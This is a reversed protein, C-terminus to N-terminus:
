EAESAGAITRWRLNGRARDLAHDASDFYQNHLQLHRRSLVEFDGSRDLAWVDDLTKSQLPQLKLEVEYTDTTVLEAIRAMDSLPYCRYRGNGTWRIEGYTLSALPLATPDASWTPLDPLWSSRM